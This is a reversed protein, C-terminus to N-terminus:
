YRELLLRVEQDLQYDKMAEWEAQRVALFSQALSPGLADILLADGALRKIADGLNAPLADINREALEADSLSGPDVQVPPALKLQRRIGDLGAAVVCGAALYPNATADVTKLEFHCSGGGTPSSPVRIAAERNDLGWCRYAGSWFHPQLRRYSNPSPAVVAALAPLHELVGAIFSRATDSLEGPGKPDPFINRGDKWLSLHLHCGCGATEAYVKPLFSAKLGHKAACGHVTERFVVQWDAAQTLTTYTASLEHQGPGSEPYYLEVPVGQAILSDVIDDIVPRALDMALTAAFVTNDAPAFGGDPTPQLLFFENEFGAMVEFGDQAAEAAIRKLFGRPCHSWPEGELVMDGMVRAHGPAYPLPTLTDFDPVLRIEGIPGLGSEPIVADYMAPMAQSAATIGVGHQVYDAVARRHIAKGRIVNANDTWVVRVFRIEAALTNLFDGDM